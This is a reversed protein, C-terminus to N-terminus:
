WSKVYFLDRRLLYIKSSFSFLWGAPSFRRLTLLIVSSCLGLTIKRVKFLNKGAPCSQCLQCLFVNLTLLIVKSCCDSSWQQWTIKSVEFLNKSAPFDISLGKMPTFPNFVEGGYLTNERVGKVAYLTNERLLGKTVAPPFLSCFLFYDYPPSRAGRCLNNRM